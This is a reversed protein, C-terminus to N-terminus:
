EEVAKRTEERLFRLAWEFGCYYDMLWLVDHVAELIEEVTDDSPSRSGAHVLQNRIIVGKKLSDLVENPPAKIKGAFSCHGRLTPLYEQLIKTVPPSPVNIALWEAGPVLTAICRKVSLEAAAIGVALASRPNSYRQEWAERFLDHHVPGAGGDRVISRVDSHITESVRRFAETHLRETVEAPAPHWFERDFSWSLGRSSIPAHPGLVNARWRLVSVTRSGYDSLEDRATTVFSKFHEPFRSFAPLRIESGDAGKYRLRTGEGGELVSYENRSIQNLVELINENPQVVSMATCFANLKDHGQAQEDSSPARLTVEVNHPGGYEFSYM